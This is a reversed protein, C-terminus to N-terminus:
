GLTEDVNLILAPIRPSTLQEGRKVRRMDRFTGGSPQTYVEVIDNILNVIWYEVIGTTAYLPAKKLRDYDLSSDAVEILLLVDAPTPHSKRYRDARPVLVAVDPEPESLDSLRVPSQASVIVSRGLQEVLMETLDRVCGAHRSGMASMKVIEGEILEVRDDESLIGAEAMRYYDGVSFAKRIIQVSM